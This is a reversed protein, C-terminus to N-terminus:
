DTKSIRRLTWVGQGRGEPFNEPRNQGSPAIFLKLRDGDLEYVGRLLRKDEPLARGDSLSRISLDFGKPSRAALVKFEGEAIKSREGNNDSM